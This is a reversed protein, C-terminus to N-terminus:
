ANENSLQKYYNSLHGELKQYHAKQIAYEGYWVLDYIRVSERFHGGTDNSQAQNVYDHNTLDKKWRIRRLRIMEKLIFTFYIRVCERYDERLMAEELRLELETKSISEPNLEEPAFAAPLKKNRPRYNKIIYYAVFFVVIILIIFMLTKWFAPSIKPTDIPDIDSDSEVEETDFEIPKPKGMEPDSPKSGGRGNGGGSGFGGGGNGGSGSKNRQQQKNKRGKEIEEPSYTITGGGGSTTAHPKGNNDSYDPDEMAAPNKYAETKPGKYDKSQMYNHRKQLNQLTPKEKSQQAYGYLSFFISIFLLYKNM